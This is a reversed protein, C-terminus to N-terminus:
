DTIIGILRMLRSLDVQPSSAVSNLNTKNRLIKQLHNDSRNKKEGLGSRQSFIGCPAEETGPTQAFMKDNMPPGRAQIPKRNESTSHTKEKGRTMDMLM